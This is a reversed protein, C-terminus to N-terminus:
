HALGEERYWTHMHSLQSLATLSRGMRHYPISGRIPIYAALPLPATLLVPPRRVTRPTKLHLIKGRARTRPERHNLCPSETWAVPAPVISLRPFMRTTPLSPM